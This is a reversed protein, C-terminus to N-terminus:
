FSTISSINEIFTLNNMRKINLDSIVVSMPSDNLYSAVSHIIKPENDIFGLYMM